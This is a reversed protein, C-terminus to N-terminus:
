SKSCSLSRCACVSIREWSGTPGHASRSQAPRALAPLDLSAWGWPQPRLRSLQPLQAEEGRSREDELPSAWAPERPPPLGGLLLLPCAELDKQRERKSDSKSNSRPGFCTALGSDAHTPIVWPGYQGCNGCSTLSAQSMKAGQKCTPAPSLPAPQSHHRLALVLNASHSKTEECTSTSILRM